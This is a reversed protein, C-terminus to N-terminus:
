KIFKKWGTFTMEGQEIDLKFGKLGNVEHNRIFREADAISNTYYVANGSPNKVVIRTAM